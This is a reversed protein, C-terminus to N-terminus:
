RSVRRRLTRAGLCASMAILLLLTFNAGSGAVCGGGGGSGGGTGPTPGPGPTSTTGNGTIEFTFPNAVGPADHGISVTASKAGVTTPDFAISFSTSSGSTVTAGMGATFLVFEGADGTVNVGTLTLTAGGNNTITISVSATAGGAIDHDGFDRSSGAAAQGPAVSSGDSVSIGPAAPQAAQVISFSLVTDDTGDNVTVTVVHTAGAVTNFDGTTPSITYPM